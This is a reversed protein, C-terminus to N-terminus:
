AAIGDSQVFSTDVLRYGSDAAIHAIAREIAHHLTGDVQGAEREFDLVDPDASILPAIADPRIWFM